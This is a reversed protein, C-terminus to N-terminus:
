RRSALAALVGVSITSMIVSFSIATSFGWQDIFLGALPPGGMSGIAAATYLTGIVGGLGEMGFLDATVAPSLAIFGGYGLGLLVVYFVLAPYSSGAFLWVIHSLAMVVFSGLYIKFADMRDGLSGLGLRGIVSSGGIIGVLAAAPVSGVGRETAYEGVFVFPVFLAFSIFVISVYLYLFKTLKLLELLSRPKAGPVAAPGVAALSAAILMLSAGGAAFILYTKRWSTESILWAALPSGVLTGLGIGAVAVGLASARRRQFWGGVCAVMPVYGCAMAFGVGLGYTAYGFWISPALATLGLGAVLSAAGAVLVKRPGVKDAWRGTFLGFVFSLSVTLSFFLATSSKGVNFEESMSAFFANFSYGIGFTAFTSMVAAAVVLWGRASDLDNTPGSANLVIRFGLAGGDGASPPPPWVTQPASLRGSLAAAKRGQSPEHAETACPGVVM